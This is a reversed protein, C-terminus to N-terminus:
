ANLLEDSLALVEAGYRKKRSRLIGKYIFYNAICLAIGVCGVAIGVPMLVPVSAGIVGMALCMGAGLVLASVTGFIYSFVKAPRKVKKDLRRLTELKNEKPPLYQARLKEAYTQQTQINM